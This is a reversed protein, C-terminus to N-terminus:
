AAIERALRFGYSTCRLSVPATMRAASRCDEPPSSWSGGRLVRMDLEPGYTRPTGDRPPAGDADYRFSWVDEVWEWVNGSADFLGWPNPEFRLAPTTGARVGTEEDAGDFGSEPDFNAQTRDIMEGCWFPTVTGARAAYEWEAESLLRYVQGTERTLWAAYARADHWSACVVPHTGDQAFGPDSWSLGPRLEEQEAAADWAYVDGSMDHGTAALFASFEARTIPTRSVGIPRGIDIRRVPGEELEHDPDSDPSGMWFSGAPVVVVDPGRLDDRFWQRRGNGPLFLGDPAGRRILADIRVAGKTTGTGM